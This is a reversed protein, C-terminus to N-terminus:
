RAIAHRNVLVDIASEPFVLSFNMFFV